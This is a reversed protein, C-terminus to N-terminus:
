RHKPHKKKSREGERMMMPFNELVFVQDWEFRPFFNHKEEVKLVEDRECLPVCLSLNMIM